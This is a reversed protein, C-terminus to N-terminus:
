PLEPPQPPATPRTAEAAARQRALDAIHAIMDVDPQAARIVPKPYVGLVVCLLVIPTLLLWERPKLDRVAEGAHHPERVPGFLLRRMMTILYWAGLIITSSALVTVFLRHGVGAEYDAVGALCLFESVFGNL